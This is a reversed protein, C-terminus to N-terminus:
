MCIYSIYKYIYIDYWIYIYSMTRPSGGIEDGHILMKNAPRTFIPSVTVESAQSRCNGQQIRKTTSEPQIRHITPKLVLLCLQPGVNYRTQNTTQFMLKINGDIPFKMGISTWIKWLPPGVVLWNDRKTEFNRPPLYSLLLKVERIELSQVGRTRGTTGSPTLTWPLQNFTRYDAVKWHSFKTHISNVEMDLMQPINITFTSGNIHCVYM